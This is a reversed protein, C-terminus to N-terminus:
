LYHINNNFYQISSYRITTFDSISLNAATFSNNYHVFTIQRIRLYCGKPNIIEILLSITRHFLSLLHFLHKVLLFILEFNNFSFISLSLFLTTNPGIRAITTPIGLTPLDVKILLQYTFRTCFQLCARTVLPFCHILIFLSQITLYELSKIAM